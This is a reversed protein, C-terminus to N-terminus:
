ACVRRASPRSVAAGESAWRFWTEGEDTRASVVDPLRVLLQHSNASLWQRARESESCLSQVTLWFRHSHDPVALHVVEDGVLYDLVWPPAMIIRWNFSLNRLSSCNGWKTQQDMIYLRGPSAGLTDAFVRVRSAIEERAQRRLWNELTREPTTQAQEDVAEREARM